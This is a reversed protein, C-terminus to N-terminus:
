PSPAFSVQPLTTLLTLTCFRVVVAQAIRSASTKQDYDYGERTLFYSLTVTFFLLVISVLAQPARHLTSTRATLQLGVVAETFRRSAQGLAWWVWHRLSIQFAPEAMAMRPHKRRRLQNAHEELGDLWKQTRTRSAVAHGTPMPLPADSGHASTAAAADDALILPRLSQLFPVSEWADVARMQACRRQWLMDHLLLVGIGAYLAALAFLLIM